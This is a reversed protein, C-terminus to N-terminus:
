SHLGGIDSTAVIWQLTMQGKRIGVRTHEGILPGFVKALIDKAIDREEHTWSKVQVMVIHPADFMYRGQADTVRDESIDKFLSIAGCWCPPSIFKDLTLTINWPGLFFKYCDMLAMRADYCPADLAIARHRACIREFEAQETPNLNEM